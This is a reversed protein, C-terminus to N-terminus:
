GDYYNGYLRSGYYYSYGDKGYKQAESENVYNFAVGALKRNGPLRQISQQVLDRATSAWRVVYVIKDVLQAVIIPDNVPGIPPTDIVIYDFTQKCGAILAKMRESGLLDAPNRTKSGAPLVWLKADENYEILDQPSVGDLLVDVLGQVKHLGFFRSASSHRLDADILLVKLDSAAASVALTMAITTKGENPVTSTLQIVKPPHDVDTMQVGSRLTRIAESFRSL